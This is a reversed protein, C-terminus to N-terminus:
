PHHHNPAQSIFNLYKNERKERPLGYYSENKHLKEENLLYFDIIERVLNHYVIVSYM